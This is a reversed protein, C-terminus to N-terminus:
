LSSRTPLTSPAQELSAAQNAFEPASHAPPPSALDESLSCAHDVMAPVAELEIPSLSPLSQPTTTQLTLQFPSRSPFLSRLFVKPSAAFLSSLSSLLFLPLSPPSLPLLSSPDFLFSSSPLRSSLLDVAEEESGTAEANSSRLHPLSQHTQVPRLGRSRLAYRRAQLPSPAQPSPHLSALVLFGVGDIASSVASPLFALSASLTPLPSLLVSPRAPHSSPLLLQVLAPVSDLHLFLLRFPSPLSSSASISSFGFISLPRHLSSRLVLLLKRVLRLTQGLLETQFHPSSRLLRRPTHIRFSLPTLPLLSLLFSSFSLVFADRCSISLDVQFRVIPCSRLAQSM